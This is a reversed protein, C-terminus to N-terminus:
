WPRRMIFALIAGLVKQAFTPRISTRYAVAWPLQCDTLNCIPVRPGGPVRQQSAKSHGCTCIDGWAPIDQRAEPPIDGM